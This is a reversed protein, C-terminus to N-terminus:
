SYNKLKLQILRYAIQEAIIPPVADGIQRYKASLAGEFIYEKPFGQLLAMERVTLLRDQEPHTYRGNGVHGCERTITAALEDWKLRGYVDPFSGKRRKTNFMSPILLQKKENDSLNPDNMVDGWSGGDKPIARIRNLVTPSVSPCVHMKDNPDIAGAKLPPLHSITDRVTFKRQVAELQFSNVKGKRWALILARDRRQPLGYKSLDHVQSFVSYDLAELHERLKLFHHKQKGQLLEKVNEMVLFEPLFEAVFDATRVVLRNRPDDNLHNKSNKQSFGTCPPCAILVELEERELGLERRYDSPELQILDADKPTIGINRQYTANCNTSSAKHKGRGPKAVQRDVAGIIRFFNSHHYFGYSM